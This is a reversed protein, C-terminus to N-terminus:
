TGHEFVSDYFLICMYVQYLVTNKAVDSECRPRVWICQSMAVLSQLEIRLINAKSKMCECTGEFVRTIKECMKGRAMWRSM